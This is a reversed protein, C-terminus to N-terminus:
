RKGNKRWTIGILRVSEIGKKNWLQGSARSAPATARITYLDPEGNVFAAYARRSQGTPKKRM